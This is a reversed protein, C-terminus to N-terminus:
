CRLYIFLFFGSAGYTGNEDELWWVRWVIYTSDKEILWWVRIWVGRSDTLRVKKRSYLIREVKGVLNARFKEVITYKDSLM